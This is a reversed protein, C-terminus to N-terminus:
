TLDNYHPIDKLYKYTNDTHNYKCCFHNIGNTVILHEARFNINYNAIQDFTSQSIKISSAKCEIVVIVDGIKNYLVIDARKLTNHIKLSIEVGLLGKPYKKDNILFHIFSQRVYEEPTLIYYKNRIIDFIEFNSNKKKINLKYEPLNLKTM